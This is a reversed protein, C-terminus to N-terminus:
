LYQTHQAEDIELNSKLVITQTNNISNTMQKSDERKEEGRGSTMMIMM